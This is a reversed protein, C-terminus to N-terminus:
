TKRRRLALEIVPWDDPTWIGAEAFPFGSLYNLMEQQEASPGNPPVKLEIFLLGDPPRMLVLDPWGKLNTATVWRNGKGITRRVHLHRWGQMHALEIVQEQFENETPKV